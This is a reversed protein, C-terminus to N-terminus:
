YDDVDDGDFADAHCHFVPYQNTGDVFTTQPIVGVLKWGTYSITNVVVKRHEGEFEEDYVGEKYKAM